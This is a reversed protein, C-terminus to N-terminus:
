YWYGRRAQVVANERKVKVELTHYGGPEVGRANYYVVYASRFENLVRQFAVSLDTTAGVPLVSGGTERALAMYVADSGATVAPRLTTTGGAATGFMFSNSMAVPGASPMVFALTARARRAITTLAAPTTVSSSDNGDTFFVVLQRRDAAASSVLSVSIADHLATSGGAAVSKMATEVARVDSTFDVTRNVRMNFLILRLRDQRALDGMLTVVGRRLRELLTGTVSYSVDLAVTVDIPLKGYSINDVTQPVGNDLIEFDAPKLNTIPRRNRDFVSVDVAVGSASSRFTPLQVPDQSLLTLLSAGILRGLPSRM